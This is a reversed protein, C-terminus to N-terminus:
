GATFACTLPAVTPEDYSRAVRGTADVNPTTSDRQRIRLAEDLGLTLPACFPDPGARMPVLHANECSSVFRTAFV